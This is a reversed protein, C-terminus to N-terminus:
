AHRDKSIGGWRPLSITRPWGLHSGDAKTSCVTKIYLM